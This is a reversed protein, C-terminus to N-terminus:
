ADGTRASQVLHAIARHLAEHDHEQRIFALCFIRLEPLSVWERFLQTFFEPSHEAARLLCAQLLDPDSLASWARAALLTILEIQQSESALTYVSRFKQQYSREHARASTTRLLAYNLAFGETNQSPQILALLNNQLANPLTCHELAATLADQLPTPCLPFHKVLYQQFKRDDLDRVVVDHIGQIGLQQWEDDIGKAVGNDTVHQGTLYSHAQEYHISPLRRLDHSVKAHFMARRTEDPQFIYPNQQLRAEQEANPQATPTEGLAEVIISLFHQMAAHQFAGREDLPLSVFWIFPNDEQTPHWFTIGLWAKQQRPHPFPLEGREVGQLQEAPLPVVRRSLDYVRWEVGSANMFESLTAITTM